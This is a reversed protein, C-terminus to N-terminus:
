ELFLKLSNPLHDMVNAFTFTNHFVQGISYVDSASTFIGRNASEPAVFGITGATRFTGLSEKIPWSHNFDTIKWIFEVTSLM